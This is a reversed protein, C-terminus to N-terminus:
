SSRGSDPNADPIPRLPSWSPIARRPWTGSIVKFSHRRQYPLPHACTKTSNGALSMSVYHLSSRHCRFEDLRSRFLALRVICLAAHSSERLLVLSTDGTSCTATESNREFTERFTLLKIPHSGSKEAGNTRKLGVGRLTRVEAESQCGRQECCPNEPEKQRVHRHVRDRVFSIQFHIPRRM